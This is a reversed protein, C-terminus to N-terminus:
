FSLSSRGRVLHLVRRRDDLISAIRTGIEPSFDFPRTAVLDVMEAM